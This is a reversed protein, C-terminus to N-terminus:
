GSTRMCPRTTCYVRGGECHCSNCNINFTQHNKFLTGKHHCNNDSSQHPAINGDKDRDAESCMVMGDICICVDEEQTFAEEDGYVEGRPSVCKGNAMWVTSKCANMTCFVNGEICKCFNCRDRFEEGERYFTYDYECGAQRKVKNNVCGNMWCDVQGEKCQCLHCGIEFKEKETYSKGNFSCGGKKIEEKPCPRIMCIINGELCSCVNCGIKFKDGIDFVRGDETKCGEANRKLAEIEGCPNLTCYIQGNHCECTNCNREFYEGDKYYKDNDKCGLGQQQDGIVAGRTRCVSIFCITM